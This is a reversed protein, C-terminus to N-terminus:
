GVETKKRSLGVLLVVVYAWVIWSSLVIVQEISLTPFVVDHFQICLVDGLMGPAAM